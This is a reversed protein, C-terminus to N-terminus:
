FPPLPPTPLPPPLPTPGPPEPPFPEEELLDTFLLGLMLELPGDFGEIDRTANAVIEGAPNPGAFMRKGHFNFLIPGRFSAGEFLRGGALRLVAPGLINPGLFARDSRFTAVVPSYYISGGEYVHENTFTYAPAYSRYPGIFIWWSSGGLYPAREITYLIEGTPNPGEFIRLRDRGYYSASAGLPSFVSSLTIITLVLLIVSRTRAQKM